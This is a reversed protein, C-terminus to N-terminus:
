HKTKYEIFPYKNTVIYENFIRFLDLKDKSKLKLHIATQM